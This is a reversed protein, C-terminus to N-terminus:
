PNKCPKYSYCDFTFMFWIYFLLFRVNLKNLLPSTSFSSFSGFFSFYLSINIQHQFVCICCIQKSMRLMCSCESRKEEKGGEVWGIFWQTLFMKSM